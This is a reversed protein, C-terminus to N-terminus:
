RNEFSYTEVFMQSKNKSFLNIGYDLEMLAIEYKDEPISFYEYQEKIIHKIFATDIEIDKIAFLDLFENRSGFFLKMDSDNVKYNNKPTRNAGLCYGNDYLPAFSVNNDEKIVGFNKEHRDTNHFLCDLFIMDKIEKSFGQMELYKLLNIGTRSFDEHKLQMANVFDSNSNEIFCKCSVFKGYDCKGNEYNIANIGYLNAVKSYIIENALLTNYYNNDFKALFPVGEIDYWFKEMVGDTTFDPSPKFQAKNTLIYKGVVSEFGNDHFNVDEWQLNPNDCIWFCDTLSLCLTKIAAKNNSLNIESLLKDSKLRGYPICRSDFWKSFLIKGQQKNNSFTGVPLKSKDYIKEYGVPKDNEFLLEAIIDNKYMLKM